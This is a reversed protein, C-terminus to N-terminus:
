ETHDDAREEPQGSPAAFTRLYLVIQWIEADSLQKDYASMTTYSQRRGPRAAQQAGQRAPLHFAGSGYKTVWFLQGDSLAQMMPACTFDRAPPVLGAAAPGRGSGDHGHCSACSGGSREAEYLARGHEIDQTSGSLPNARHYYTDPARQTERPQPCADRAATFAEAEPPATRTQCGSVLVLLAVAIATPLANHTSAPM